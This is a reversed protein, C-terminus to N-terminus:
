LLSSPVDDLQRASRSRVWEALPSHSQLEEAQAHMVYDNEQYNYLFSIINWLKLKTM